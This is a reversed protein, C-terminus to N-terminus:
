KVEKERLKRWIGEEDERALKLLAQMFRALPGVGDEGFPLVFEVEEESADVEVEEKYGEGLMFKEQFERSLLWKRVTFSPKKVTVIAGTPPVDEKYLPLSVEILPNYFASGRMKDAEVSEFINQMASKAM